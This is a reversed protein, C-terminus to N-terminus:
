KFYYVLIYHAFNLPLINLFHLSSFDVKCSHNRVLFVVQYTVHSAMITACLSLLLAASPSARSYFGSPYLALTASCYTCLRGWWLSSSLLSPPSTASSVPLMTEVSLLVMVIVTGISVSQVKAQSPGWQFDHLQAAGQHMWEACAWPIQLLHSEASVIVGDVQWTINDRPVPWVLLLQTQCLCQAMHHSNMSFGAEAENRIDHTCYLNILLLSSIYLCCNCIKLNGKTCNLILCTYVDRKRSYKLVM